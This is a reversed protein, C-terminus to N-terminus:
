LQSLLVRLGGSCASSRLTRLANRLANQIEIERNERNREVASVIAKEGYIEELLRMQAHPDLNHQKM